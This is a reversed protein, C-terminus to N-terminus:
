NGDSLNDDVGALGLEHIKRTITNRGIGLKIAADNKRGETHQLAARILAAEFQRNLVPLIDADGNTLMKDAVQELLVVWDAADGHPAPSGVLQSVALSSTSTLTPALEALVTVGQERLLEPPLDEVGVLRGPAMVTIWNCLNELQRVNGPLELNALFQLAPTTIQKPEIGLQAASRQLFHRVLLPIDERRERLSPLRLRIVNLRHYLDERFLGDRVRQELDQHTAAIIRVDAALSQRGGVRYFHGDSLVRLLRTQLDYPMDGIEDLFLSGGEAQEFRGQRLTQA